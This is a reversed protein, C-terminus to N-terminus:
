LCRYDPDQTPLRNYEPARAVIQEINHVLDRLRAARQDTKQVADDLWHLKKTGGGHRVVFDYSPAPIFSGGDQPHFDDPYDFFRIAAMQRYIASADESSLRFNTTATGGAVLTRTLTGAFTDLRVDDPCERYEFVFAFDAAPDGPAATGSVVRTGGDGPTATAPPAAQGASDPTTALDAGPEGGNAACATLLLAVLGCLLGGRLRRAPASAPGEM